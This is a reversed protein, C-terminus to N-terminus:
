RLKIEIKKVKEKKLVIDQEMYSAPTMQGRLAYGGYKLWSSTTIVFFSKETIKNNKTDIVIKQPKSVVPKHTHATILFDLGEFVYAFRENKNVASGTLTGGGRGHTVGFTYTQRNWDNRDGIQIKVFCMNERYRDEIGLNFCVDYIINTDDAVNDKKSEHNGGTVALIKGAKVLPRLQEVLWTKQDRPRVTNSFPEHSNKTQNDIMDGDIILYTNPETLVQQVFQKWQEVNCHVSGYHIDAVPKIVIENPFSYTLMKFDNEM